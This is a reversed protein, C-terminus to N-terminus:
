GARRAHRACRDSAPRARRELPPDGWRPASFPGCRRCGIGLAGAEMEQRVLERMQALQEPTAKKDELGIVYERITTAGIYSAVNQSIGKKEAYTLYEALTTWKFEFKIDGQQKIRREKMEETLPGMSEGEGMIETTIGERIESQSRGDEILSENSWSLMNIFGPAVALGKADIVQYASEAPFNGLAVILDRRIAVDIVRPKEGSGDYLTGGKILVDFM